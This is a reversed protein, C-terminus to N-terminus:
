GILLSINQVKRVQDRVGKEPDTTLACLAPLIRHACEALTFYGHTAAMALIGAQRAPPFPDKLARMYASSLVKQRIQAFLCIVFGKV